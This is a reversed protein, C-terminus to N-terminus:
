LLLSPHESFTHLSFTDADDIHTPSSGTQKQKDEFGLHWCMQSHMHKSVAIQQVSVCSNNLESNVCRVLVATRMYVDIWDEM